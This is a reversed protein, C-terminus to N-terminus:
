EQEAMQKQIQTIFSRVMTAENADPFVTLFEEYVKIAEKFMKAREYSDGLLQYIVIADPAGALQKVAAILEGAALVYYAKESEFDGTAGFEQAKDRYLSGLGTHAEPQFGKGESIARKFAAVAQAEEGESAYIRGEIASAEALGPRLKRVEKIAKLAGETDGAASLIRALGLQAEVFKPRLSVAKNYADIAKERDIATLNEAQQFALEAEDTTKTLAIKIEGKDAPLLNQTIEKFGDARVKIRRTGPPVNKITLKGDDGTAGYRIDNIWVSANPESVITITRAQATQAATARKQASAANISLFILVFCFIKLIFSKYM